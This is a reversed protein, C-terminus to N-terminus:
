QTTEICYLHKQGRLFLQTGVIVPSADIGEDLQNTSLVEYKPGHKLVVTKGDRGAIYVKGAAGALSAYLM